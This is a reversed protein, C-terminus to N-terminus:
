AMVFALFDDALETVRIRPLSDNTSEYLMASAEYIDVFDDIDQSIRILGRIALDECLFKFADKSVPSGIEESFLKYLEEYGKITRLPEPHLHLQRLLLIHKSTLEDIYRVFLVASDDDITIGLASHIIATKLMERKQQNHTKMAVIITEILISKFYENNQLEAIKIGHELLKEAVEEMFIQTKRQLPTQVLANFLELAVGSVAISSGDPLPVSQPLLATGVRAVTLLHDGVTPKPVEIKKEM